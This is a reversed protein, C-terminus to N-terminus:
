TQSQISIGGGILLYAQSCPGNFIYLQIVDGKNLSYTGTTQPTQYVAANGGNMSTQVPTGIVFGNRLVESTTLVGGNQNQYYMLQYSITYTGTYPITISNTGDKMYVIYPNSCGDAWPNQGSNRTDVGKIWSGNTWNYWDVKVSAIYSWNFRTSYTTGSYLSSTTSDPTAARVSSFLSINFLIFFVLLEWKKGKKFIM